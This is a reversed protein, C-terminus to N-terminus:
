DGASAILSFVYAGVAMSLSVRQVLQWQRAADLEAKDKIRFPDGAERSQRDSAYLSLALGGAQMIGLVLGHKVRNRVFWGTGFPMAGLSLGIRPPTGMDRHGGAGPAAQTGSAGDAGIETLTIGALVMPRDDGDLRTGAGTKPAAKAPSPAAAPLPAAPLAITSSDAALTGLHPVHPDVPPISPVSAPSSLQARAREFATLVAPDENRPFQFLSDMGLLSTFYGAAEPQRGLRASAMGLYQFVSLSDRRKLDGANKIAELRTLASDFRGQHYFSAAQNLPAGHGPSAAILASAAASLWVSHSVSLRCLAIRM